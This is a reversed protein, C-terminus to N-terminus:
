QINVIILYKEKEIAIITYKSEKLRYILGIVQMYKGLLM